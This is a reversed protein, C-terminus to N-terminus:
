LSDWKQENGVILPEGNLSLDISKTNSLPRERTIVAGFNDSYFKAAADPNGSRFHLHTYTFKM